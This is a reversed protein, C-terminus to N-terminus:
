SPRAQVSEFARTLIASLIPMRVPKESFLLDHRKVADAIEDEKAMGSVVQATLVIIPCASDQARLEAILKLTSTEGVLWDVVFADYRQVKASSVLDATKYFPRADYHSAEFHACMSNTLDRDDDLVAIIKRTGKSPSAELRDIAYAPQQLADSALVAQWGSGTSVAVVQSPVTHALREGIWLRCDFTAAGFRAVAPVAASQQASKVVDALSEGLLAGVRALDELTWISTGNLRRHAQSYSLGLADALWPSQRYKPLGHRELLARVCRVALPLPDTEALAGPGTNM